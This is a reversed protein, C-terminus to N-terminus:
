RSPEAPKGTFLEEPTMELVKALRCLSRVTLNQEGREIRGIHPQTMGAKAAVEHQTLGLERRRECARLGLQRLVRVSDDRV